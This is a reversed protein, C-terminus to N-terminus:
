ELYQYKTNAEDDSGESDSNGETESPIVTDRYTAAASRIHKRGAKNHCLTLCCDTFTDLEKVLLRRKEESVLNVYQRTQSLVSVFARATNVIPCYQTSTGDTAKFFRVLFKAFQRTIKTVIM